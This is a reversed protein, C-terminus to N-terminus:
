NPDYKRFFIHERSIQQQLYRDAEDMATMAPKSQQQQDYFRESSNPPMAGLISSAINHIGTGNPAPTEYSLNPNQTPLSTHMGSQPARRAQDRQLELDTEIKVSENYQTQSATINLLITATAEDLNTLEEFLQAAKTEDTETIAENLLIENARSEREVRNLNDREDPISKRSLETIIAQKTLLDETHKLRASGDVIARHAQLTTHHRDEFLM